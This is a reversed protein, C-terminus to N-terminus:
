AADSKSKSPWGDSVSPEQMVTWSLLARIWHHTNVKARTMQVSFNENDLRLVLSVSEDLGVVLLSPISLRRPNQTDPWCLHKCQYFCGDHSFDCDLLYPFRLLHIVRSRKKEGVEQLISTFFLTFLCFFTTM